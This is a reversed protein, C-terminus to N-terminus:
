VEYHIQKKLDIIRDCDSKIQLTVFTCVYTYKYPFYKLYECDTGDDVSKVKLTM